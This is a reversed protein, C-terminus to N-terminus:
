FLHAVAGKLEEVLRDYEADSIGSIGLSRYADDALAIQERQRQKKVVAKEKEAKYTVSFARCAKIFAQM